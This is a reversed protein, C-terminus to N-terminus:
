QEWIPELKSFRKRSIYKLGWSNIPKFFHYNHVEVKERAIEWKAANILITIGTKIQDQISITSHKKTPFTM